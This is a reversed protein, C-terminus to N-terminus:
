PQLRAVAWMHPLAQSVSDRSLWLRAIEMHLLANSPEDEIARRFLALVSDSQHENDFLAALNMLAEMNFRPPTLELSRRYTERAKVVEGKATQVKALENLIEFRDPLARALNELAWEASDINQKQQYYSALFMYGSHDTSDIQVLELYDAKAQELNGLQRNCFARLSFLESSRTTIKDLAELAVPLQKTQVLTRAYALGIEASEPYFKWALKYNDVANPLDGEGEFLLGNVFYQYANNDIPKPEPVPVVEAPYARLGTEALKAQTSDRRVSTAACGNVLSLVAGLALLGGLRHSLFTM